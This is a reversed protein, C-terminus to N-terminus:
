PGFGKVVVFSIPMKMGKMGYANKVKKDSKQRIFTNM